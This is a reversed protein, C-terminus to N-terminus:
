FYFSRKRIRKYKRRNFWVPFAPTNLDTIYQYTTNPKDISNELFLDPDTDETCVGIEGSAEQVPTLQQNTEESIDGKASVELSIQKAQVQKTLTEQIGKFESGKVEKLPQEVVKNTYDKNTFDSRDVVKDPVKKPHIQNFRALSFQAFAAEELSNEKM